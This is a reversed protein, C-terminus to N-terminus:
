NSLLLDHKARNTQEVNEMHSSNDISHEIKRLNWDSSISLTVRLLAEQWEFNLLFESLWMLVFVCLM